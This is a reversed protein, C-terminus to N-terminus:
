REGHRLWLLAENRESFAACDFGAELGLLNVLERWRMRSMDPELIAVPWRDIGLAQGAALLQALQEEDFLPGGAELLILVGRVDRDRSQAQLLGLMDVLAALDAHAGFQLEVIGATWRFGCSDPM